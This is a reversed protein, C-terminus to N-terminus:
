LVILLSKMILLKYFHVSSVNKYTNGSNEFVTMKIHPNEIIICPIFKNDYLSAWIKKYYKFICKLNMLSFKIDSIEM